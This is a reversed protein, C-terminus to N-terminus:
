PHAREAERKLDDAYRAFVPRFDPLSRKLLPLMLGSFREKMTFDTSGDARPKLEFTRVGKFLPAFGGSWTMRQGTVVGSVRPTFTRDTGPVRLRLRAGERIQGDIGTVTSNWRPFNAADTLLTWVAEAGALINVEVGCVLSFANRTQTVNPGSM